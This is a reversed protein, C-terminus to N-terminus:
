KRADKRLLPYNPNGLEDMREILAAVAPHLGAEAAKIVWEAMPLIRCNSGKPDLLFKEQTAGTDLILLRELNDLPVVIDGVEHIYSIGRPENKISTHQRRRVIANAIQTCVNQVHVMDLAGKINKIEPVARLVRAYHVLGNLWDLNAREGRADRGERLITSPRHIWVPLGQEQCTRELLRECAWKSATYGGHSPGGGRGMHNNGDEVPVRPTGPAKEPYLEPEANGSFLGVGASSIFHLPIKRPLCLRILEATSGVNAGRIAEYSKMHSTDAAVHIVVDATSFISACDADSLGLRPLTLDGAFFSVRHAQASLFANDPLLTMPDRKGPMSLGRIAICMIKTSEPRERLLNELLHHGLLGTSGTLVITQPICDPPQGTQIYPDASPPITELDWDIWRQGNNLSKATDLTLGGPASNTAKTNTDGQQGADRDKTTLSSIRPTLMPPLQDVAERVLSAITDDSMIRLVPMSVMLTKMLWNRIDVSILSDLGLKHGRTAMLEEDGMTKIQLEFRLLSLFAQRVAKEVEQLTRCARLQDQVASPASTNINAESAAPLADVRDIKNRHVILHAFKPDSSWKPRDPADRMVDLLGVSLETIEAGCNERAEPRSAVIAEAIMQHFDEESLHMMAGRSVALDLVRTSTRQIYGAGILAGVNLAIGPLGRQRRAAALAVQFTNAAAYNAQGQNGIICNMSSLLVFFDLPTQHTSFLRDINLSGIVKPRIVDNLQTFTMNYISTDRLVMAGNFVGAIPPNM